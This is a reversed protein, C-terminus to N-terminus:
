GSDAMPRRGVWKWSFGQTLNLMSAHPLPSPGTESQHPLSREQTQDPVRTQFWNRHRRVRRTNGGQPFHYRMVTRSTKQRTDQLKGVPLIRYSVRYCSDVNVFLYQHDHNQIRFRGLVLRLTAAEAGGAALYLSKEV